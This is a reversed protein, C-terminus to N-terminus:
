YIYIYVCIYIYTYICISVYNPISAHYQCSDSYLDLILAFIMISNHYDHSLSYHAFGQSLPSVIWTLNITFEKQYGSGEGIMVLLICTGFRKKTQLRDYVSYYPNVYGNYPNWKPPIVMGLIIVLQNVRGCRSSPVDQSDRDKPSTKWWSFVSIREVYWFVPARHWKLELEADGATSSGGTAIHFEIGM